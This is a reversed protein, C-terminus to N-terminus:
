RDKRTDSKKSSSRKVSKAVPHPTAKARSPPPATSEKVRLEPTFSIHKAPGDEGKARDVVVQAATAGLKYVFQDVTSLTPVTTDSDDLNDFGVISLDKPCQMQVERAAALVGFAILDNGAFIATPPLRLNLLEAAKRHGTAKNFEAERIFGSQIPLGAEKMAREFGDLRARASTGNLPGTITAIRKHGLDILHKTAAYAGQEHASTVTDGCWKPPIRDMYVVGCGAKLYEHAEETGKGLDAPVIILGSPRYTRMEHIYLAEKKSDNDSNCLVLRFGNRFAVDEAGRVAGPFFPNTIDPVIMVIMNSKDKRLARGLLSPQYGLEEIAEMVRQRAADRVTPLGNLVNSVTGISVGALRAIEKITAM